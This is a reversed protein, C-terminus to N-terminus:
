DGNKSNLLDRDTRNFIQENTNPDYTSSIVLDPYLKEFDMKGKSDMAEKMLQARKKGTLSRIEVEVDWEDIKIIESKIDSANLIKDRLNM